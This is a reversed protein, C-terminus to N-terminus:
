FPDTAGLQANGFALVVGHRSSEFSRAAVVVLLEVHGFRFNLRAFPTYLYPHTEFDLVGSASPNKKAEGAFRWVLRMRLSLRM